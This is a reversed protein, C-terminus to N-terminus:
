STAGAKSKDRRRESDKQKEGQLRVGVDVRGVTLLLRPASM